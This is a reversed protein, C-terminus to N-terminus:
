PSVWHYKDILTGQADFTYSYAEPMVRSYYWLVETCGEAAKESETRSYGGYTTACDSIQTPRGLFATIYSKRTGLRVRAFVWDRAQTQWVVLGLGVGLLAIVFGKGRRASRRKLVLGGCFFAILALLAVTLLDMFRRVHFRRVLLPTSTVAM